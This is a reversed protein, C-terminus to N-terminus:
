ERFAAELDALAREETRSVSRFGLFGGASEAVARALGLISAQLRLQSEVSLEQCVDRIYARWMALLDPKPRDELWVELLGFSPSGAPIGSAEAGSLVAQREDEDMRGDAWAIDTIRSIKVNGASLKISAYEVGDLDFEGIEGKSDVTVIIYKRAAQQRVAIYATGSVPNVALDIISIGKPTTGLRAAIKADIGAIKGTFHKKSAKEGTKVAVIQSGSGDGILLVGDDAFTIVDISRLQPTGKTAKDIVKGNATSALGGVTLGVLLTVYFRLNM